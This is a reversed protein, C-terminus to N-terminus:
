HLACTSCRWGGMQNIGMKEPVEKTNAKKGYVIPDEPVLGVVNHNEVYVFPPHSNVIPVGYYYDFGLELPGPKLDGNWDPKQEGFGLHWKGICATAYGSAKMVDAITKTDMPIILGTSSFVPKSYGSKHPYIGTILAYRSPTCVSSASHANTFRKGEKALKDINPTQVKTAGYCGLDGYGLDDANIIIVNPKNKAVLASSICLLLAINLLTKKMRKFFLIQTKLM